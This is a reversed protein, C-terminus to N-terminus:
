SVILFVRARAPLIAGPPPVQDTVRPRRTRPREYSIGGFRCGAAALRLRAVPVTLAFLRPEICGSRAPASAATAITGLATVLTAIIVALGLKV